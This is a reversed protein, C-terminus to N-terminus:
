HVMKVESIEEEFGGADRVSSRGSQKKEDYRTEKQDCVFSIWGRYLEENM